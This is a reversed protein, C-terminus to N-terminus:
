LPTLTSTGTRFNPLSKKEIKERLEEVQFAHVQASDLSKHDNSLGCLPQSALKSSSVDWVSATIDWMSASDAWMSTTFALM